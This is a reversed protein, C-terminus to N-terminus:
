EREKEEEDDNKPKYMLIATRADIVPVIEEEERWFEDKL